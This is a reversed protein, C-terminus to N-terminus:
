ADPTVSGFAPAYWYMEVEVIETGSPLSAALRKADERNWYKGHFRVGSDGAVVVFRSPFCMFQGTRGDPYQFEPTCAQWAGNMPLTVLKHEPRNTTENKM